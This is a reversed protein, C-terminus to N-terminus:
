APTFGAGPGAAHKRNLTKSTNSTRRTTGVYTDELNTTRPTAATCAATLALNAGAGSAHLTGASRIRM